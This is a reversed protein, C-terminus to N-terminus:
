SVTKKLPFMVKYASPDENFSIVSAFLIWRSEFKSYM